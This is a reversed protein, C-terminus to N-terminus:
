GMAASTIYSRRMLRKGIASLPLSKPMTESDSRATIAPPSASPSRVASLNKVATTRVWADWLAGVLSALRVVRAM